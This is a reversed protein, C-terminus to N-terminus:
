SDTLEPTLLKQLTNFKTALMKLIRALIQVTTLQSCRATM